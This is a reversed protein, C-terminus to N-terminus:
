PNYIVACGSEKVVVTTITGDPSVVVTTTERTGCGAGLGAFATSAFTATVIAAMLVNRIKVSNM